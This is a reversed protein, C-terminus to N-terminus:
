LMGMLGSGHLRGCLDEITRDHTYLPPGEGPVFSLLFQEGIRRGDEPVRSAADSVRPRQHRGREAGRRDGRAEQRRNDGLVLDIDSKAWVTDHSLSGCLVVALISRDEKIQEVLTDLAATFTQHVSDSQM